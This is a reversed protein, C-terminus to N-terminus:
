ITTRVSRDKRWITSKPRWVFSPKGCNQPRPACAKLAWTTSKWLSSASLCPSRRRKKWSNRPRTVNWPPVESPSSFHISKLVTAEKQHIKQKFSVGEKKNITFNPGKRDKDKVAQLMAQRKKEAEELRRRKEEIDRQKKEEVERQRREEEERKRQAMRQEEEARSVKRKAQKEKLKKLEDEEKSRQKRWELIYEKLQEDLDSRKQDQRKIFEPDDAGRYFTKLHEDAFHLMQYIYAVSFSFITWSIPHKEASLKPNPPQTPPQFHLYMKITYLKRQTDELQPEYSNLFLVVFVTSTPYKAISWM